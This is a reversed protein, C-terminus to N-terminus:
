LGGSGAVPIAKSKVKIHKYIYIHWKSSFMLNYMIPVSYMKTYKVHNECHLAATGIFLMLRSTKTTTAYSTKRSTRVSNEYM